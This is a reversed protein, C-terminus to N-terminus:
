FINCVLGAVQKQIFDLCDAFKRLSELITRGSALVGLVGGVFSDMLNFVTGTREQLDFSVGKLRCMNFFASHHITALQPHHFLENMVYCRHQLEENGLTGDPLRQQIPASYLGTQTDFSGGVLFDFFGFTVSTHTVRINLDVAWIRLMGQFDIFAVYDIGVHGIVGREFCAKGVALTAERLAQFPVSTQPFAAGIFTFPKSFIQEHTSTVSLNGDPEIFLNASPSALIELPAAEIVGGFRKFAAIYERWSRWLWRTNIVTREPLVRMLKQVLEDQVRAQTEDTDWTEPSADHSRLLEAHFSLGDVDLHAIGRGGFENDLKFIWRPVDLHQCMLQALTSILHEEGYIDHAGPPMNVQAAHFIRKSGSKSGFLDVLSPSPALMPLRLAMALRLEEPGVVNPEIYTPKGRCYNLIRRLARPSYLLCTTLSFHSPFRHYNEPVVVKYRKTPEEVGGIELVKAFYHAVDDNLPFPSVYIVDVGPERVSCLRPLQVNQRADLNPISLRQGPSYSLSPLQILVRPGNKIHKWDAHFDAMRADWDAKLVARAEAMKKRAAKSMVMVKARRTLVLAATREKMLAATRKRSLHGRYGAQLETAAKLKVEASPGGVTRFRQGPQSICAMVQDENVVCELLSAEDQPALPDLALVALKQGDIYAIPVNYNVMIAELKAVLQQLAGWHDHYKRQFSIYEPTSDLTCGYRIIFHHLSFTDMLEDFQRAARDEEREELLLVEAPEPRPVSRSPSSPHKVSGLQRKEALTPGVDTLVDLKTNAVNFGFPSIYASSNHAAFQTLCLPRTVLLRWAKSRPQARLVQGGHFRCGLTRPMGEVNICQVMLSGHVFTKLVAEAKQRLETEVKEVVQKLSESTLQAETAPGGGALSERIKKLDAQAQLLIKGVDQVHHQAQARERCFLALTLQLQQTFLHRRKSRLSLLAVVLGVWARAFTADGARGGWGCM